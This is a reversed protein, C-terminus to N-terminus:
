DVPDEIVLIPDDTERWDLERNDASNTGLFRARFRYTKKDSNRLRVNWFQDMDANAARFTFNKREQIGNEPDDYELYVLVLQYKTWDVLSAIVTVELVDVAAPPVPITAGIRAQQGLIRDQSGNRRIVIVDYEIMRRSPDRLGFTWASVHGNDTLVAHHSTEFNNAPDEYRADVIISDVTSFDAQAVFRTTATQDFPDTITLVEAESSQEPMEMRQGNELFYTIRYVYPRPDGDHGTYTFFLATPNDRTLEFSRTASPLNSGPYRMAVEVSRVSDPITGLVVNVKVFGLRRYSIVLKRERSELSGSRPIRVTEGTNKYIIESWYSYSDKPSGDAGKAMIQRFRMMEDANRFLFEKTGRVRRHRLDDQQDYDLFVKLAYVPDSEFNVNANVTVDLEQFYPDGLDVYAINAAIEEPTLIQALQANPNVSQQVVDRRRMHIDIEGTLEQEFERLWKDSTQEETPPAFATEFFNPLINNEIIRFAMQELEATLNDSPHAERFDGSDIDVTLSTFKERFEKLSGIEPWTRRYVVKGNRTHTETIYTLTKLQEYFDRMKGHVRISISPIRALFTLQYNVIAPILGHEISQRFRESGEQNLSQSFTALNAGVLSPKESGASYPVFDDSFTKFEVSGDTFVPPYSLEPEVQLIPRLLFRYGRSQETRLKQRLHNRIKEEDERSVAVQTSLSLYASQVERDEPDLRDLDRAYLIFTFLPQGDEDRVITPREPVMYFKNAKEDDRYITVHDVGPVKFSGYLSLM